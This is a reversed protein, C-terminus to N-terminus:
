NMDISAGIGLLLRVGADNGSHLAHMLPTQGLEDELDFQAGKEILLKAAAMNSKYKLALWLLM